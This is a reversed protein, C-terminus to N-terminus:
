RLRSVLPQWVADALDPTQGVQVEVGPTASTMSFVLTASLDGVDDLQVLPEYPRVLSVTTSVTTSNNARDFFRAAVTYVGTAQPLRVPYSDEYPQPDGFVGNVGIQASMIGGADDLANADLRLDPTGVRAAGARVPAATA